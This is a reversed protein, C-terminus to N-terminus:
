KKVLCSLGSLEQQVILLPPRFKCFMHPKKIRRPLSIHSLVEQVRNGVIALGSETEDSVPNM